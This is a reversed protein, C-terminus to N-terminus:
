ALQGLTPGHRINRGQLRLRGPFSDIIRSAMTGACQPLWQRPTVAPGERPMASADPSIRMYRLQSDEYHSLRTPNVPQLTGGAKATLDTLKRKVNEKTKGYFRESGVSATRVLLCPFQSSGSGKAAGYTFWGEGKAEGFFRTSVLLNSSRVDQKCLLREVM